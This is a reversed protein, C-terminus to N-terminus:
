KKRESETKKMRMAQGDSVFYPSHSHPQKKQEFDRNLEHSEAFITNTKIGDRHVSYSLRLVTGNENM